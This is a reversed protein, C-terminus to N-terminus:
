RVEWFLINTANRLDSFGPGSNIGLGFRLFTVAVGQLGSATLRTGNWLDIHDGTPNKTEGPRAWYNAFFVIGTKGKIGEEWNEGTINMPPSTIGSIHQAKLWVALQEASTAAIKGNIRVHGGRFSKLDVGAAHLSVSIKIACQNEYGKPPDGTKADIYPKSAPYGAWLKAFSVRPAQKSQDTGKYYRGLAVPSKKAGHPSQKWKTMIGEKTKPVYLSDSPRRAEGCCGITAAKRKDPNCAVKWM